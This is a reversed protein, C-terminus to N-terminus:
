LCALLIIEDATLLTDDAAEFIPYFTTSRLDYMTCRGDYMMQLKYKDKASM